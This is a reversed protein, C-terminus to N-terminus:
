NERAIPTSFDVVALSLGVVIIIACICYSNIRDMKVNASYM